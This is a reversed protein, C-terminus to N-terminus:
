NAYSSFQLRDFNGSRNRTGIAALTNEILEKGLATDQRITQPTKSNANDTHIYTRSSATRVHRNCHVNRKRPFAIRHRSIPLRVKAVGSLFRGSNTPFRLVYNQLSYTLTCGLSLVTDSIHHTQISPPVCSIVVSNEESVGSFNWSRIELLTLHNGELDM